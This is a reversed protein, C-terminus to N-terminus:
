YSRKQRPITILWQKERRNRFPFALRERAPYVPRNKVSVGEYPSGELQGKFGIFFGVPHKVDWPRSVVWSAAIRTRSCGRLDDAFSSM